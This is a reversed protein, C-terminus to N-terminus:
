RTESYKSYPNKEFSLMYPNAPGHGEFPSIEVPRRLFIFLYQLPMKLQGMIRFAKKIDFKILSKLAARSLVVYLNDKAMRREEKSLPCDGKELFEFKLKYSEVFLEGSREHVQSAQGPTERWWTLGDNILLSNHQLAIKYRIYNDGSKYASVLGGAKKLIETRFLVNSFATGLFGHGFYEGIYFQRPSIVAPFVIYNRFWCMLAMGCDPFADLMRVMFELGHPYVIDDGDIFIFYEGAALRACQDRNPYEGLNRENRIARIRSDDYSQIIEWTNDTSNDDAILLEFNRYSSSLVSEIASRIYKESNYAVMAVTVLPMNEERSRM